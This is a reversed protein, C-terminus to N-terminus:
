RRGRKSKPKRSPQPRGAARSQSVAGHARSTTGGRGEPASTQKTPREAPVPVHRKRTAARRDADRVAREGQKLHVLVPVAVFLSSYLGAAMGVFLVLSLDELSGSGLQVVSVLLIAAVPILAVVSTNVSRVLTQNVALNAAAAYTTRSERLSSTNDRVRHFVVVTDYLSFALVALLGTLTAPSVEFGALAYVGLTLLIDHALAVMAAAAIKWERFHAGIFLAVLALFVALGLLARKAVQQGWSPGIETQSIAQPSTGTTELITSVVRESEADSLPETRVLVAEGGSITVEPSSAGDIGTAAVDERLLDATEQSVEDASLSVRYEAGGTLEVGLNLGKGWLGGVAIVVVVASVAYWLWRRGVFDVSRRGTHLDQGVKAFMTM